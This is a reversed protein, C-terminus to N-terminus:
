IKDETKKDDKEEKEFHTEYWDLIRNWHDYFDSENSAAGAGHGGNYYNVWVVEKGLRRMAYYIERTNLAPVNWDGEGTLLLHPTNIRDAFLVASTAFYKMPAEWLTQGIRDQGVEAASYNRTGIRPSDGLFSIINTKGSINIAAAFRDTQAILLSTAYGGYSTGHVGLKDPDVLEMEILKNIGATVGKIWAEGPYGQILNVSPKFGFYSANAIINMSMSYGNNFFNEYIECVLPYKKGAEYDVPYYLIGYLENGDSDLYKILETRTLKKDEIWPNLATIQKPEEFDPDSMYYDGPINGDSFHYFFRTGDESMRWRSYLNNDILLEQEKQAAIDYRVIGRNWKEKESYSMYWYKGDPSWDIINKDPAKEKEEPFEYVLKMEKTDTHILWYGKKSSALVYQGDPSWRNVSFKVESTDKKVIETTDTSIQRASDEYISRVFVQNSDIFAFATNDDNWRINIREDTKKMLTDKNQPDKLDVMLLEYETGGRRDYVTKMPTYQIYSLYDSNDSVFVGTYSGEPLLESVDGTKIDVRALTSLSSFNRIEDWKLFPRESDYVTIPGTTAEKFMSDAKESWGKERFSLILSKGDPLWELGGGSAIELQSKIKVQKRKKNAVDFLQLNFKGGDYVLFALTNDDPSFSLGRIIASRGTIPTTEGTETNILVPQGTYPTVYNPDGFRKHDINMRDKRSQITGAIYKGDETLDSISFSKVNVADQLTFSTKQASVSTTVAIFLFTLFYKKM